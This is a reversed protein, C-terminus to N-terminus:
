SPNNPHHFWGKIGKWRKNFHRTPILFSLNRVRIVSYVLLFPSRRASRSKKCSTEELNLCIEFRQVFEFLNKSVEAFFKRSFILNQDMIDTESYYKGVILWYNLNEMRRDLSNVLWIVFQSILYSHCAILYVSYPLSIGYEISFFRKM